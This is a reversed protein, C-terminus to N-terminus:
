GFRCCCRPIEDAFRLLNLLCELTLSVHDHMPVIFSVEPSGSNMAQGAKPLPCRRKGSLLEALLPGFAGTQLTEWEATSAAVLFVNRGTAESFLCPVGSLPMSAAADDIDAAPDVAHEPERLWAPISTFRSSVQSTGNAGDLGFAEALMQRESDDFQYTDLGVIERNWAGKPLVRRLEPSASAREAGVALLGSFDLVVPTKEEVMRSKGGFLKEMFGSTAEEDTAATRLSTRVRKADELPQQGNQPTRSVSELTYQPREAGHYLRDSKFLLVLLQINVVVLLAVVLFGRSLPCRM